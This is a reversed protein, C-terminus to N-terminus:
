DEKEPKEAREGGQTYLKIGRSAVASGIGAMVVLLLIKMLIGVGAVAVGNMDLPKGPKIGLADSPDLSFMAQALVFTAIILGVGGIFTFLGITTAAPDRRREPM